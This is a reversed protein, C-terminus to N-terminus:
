VEKASVVVAIKLRSILFFFEFHSFPSCTQIQAKGLIAASASLQM